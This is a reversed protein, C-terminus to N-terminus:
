RGQAIYSDSKGFVGPLLEVVVEQVVGIEMDVVVTVDVITEDGVVLLHM